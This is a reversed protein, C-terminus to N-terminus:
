YGTAASNVYMCGLFANNCNPMVLIMESGASSDVFRDAREIAGFLGNEDTWTQDTGTYGHLLYVVPYRRDTDGYSPPLYISVEPADPSGILNGELSPGFVNIREVSGSQANVSAATLALLFLGTVFIPDKRM